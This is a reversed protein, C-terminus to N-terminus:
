ITDFGFMQLLRLRCGERDAQWQYVDPVYWIPMDWDYKISAIDRFIVRQSCKLRDAIERTTTAQGTLILALVDMQRSLQPRNM